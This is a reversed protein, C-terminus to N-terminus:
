AATVGLHEAIAATLPTVTPLRDGTFHGPKHTRLLAEGSRTWEFGRKNLLRAFVASAKAPDREALRRLPVPSVADGRLYATLVKKYRAKILLTPDAFAEELLGFDAYYGLGEVEDFILAVTEAEKLHAPLDLDTHGDLKNLYGRMTSTLDHGTTVVLDSGFHAVFRRRQEAQLQRAKALADPNRFVYPPNNLAVHAAVPVLTDRADATYVTPTASIFWEGDGLPVLRGVVFMGQELPEFADEGLNSHALYTLEDVLNFLAVGTGLLDRGKVEFVGEVVDKWGLLLRKDADDLDPNDEVFRDVVTDGTPLRHQLVFYDIPLFASAEDKAPGDAFFRDLVTKLEKAFQGATAYHVLQPKLETARALLDM